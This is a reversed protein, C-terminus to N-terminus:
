EKTKSVKAVKEVKPEVEKAPADETRKVFIYESTASTPAQDERFSTKLQLVQFLEWGKAIKRRLIENVEFRNHSGIASGVTSVHADFDTDSMAELQAQPKDYGVAAANGIIRLTLVAHDIAVIKSM